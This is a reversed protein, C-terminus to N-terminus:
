AELAICRDSDAFNIKDQIVITSPPHDNRLIALILGISMTGFTSPSRRDYGHAGSAWAVSTHVEGPCM